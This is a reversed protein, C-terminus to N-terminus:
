RGRRRRQGQHEVLPARLREAEGRVDHGVLDGHAGLETADDDVLLDGGAVADVLAVAEVGDHDRARDAVGALCDRGDSRHAVGGIDDVRLLRGHGVAREGVPPERIDLAGLPAEHLATRREGRDGGHSRLVRDGLEPERRAVVAPHCVPAWTSRRRGSLRVTGPSTRLTDTVVSPPTASVLTVMELSARRSAAFALSVAGPVGSDAVRDSRSSPGSAPGVSAITSKRRFIPTRQHCAEAIPHAAGVAGAEHGGDDDGHEDHAAPTTARAREPPEAPFVATASPSGTLRESVGTSSRAVTFFSAAASTCRVGFSSGVCRRALSTTGGVLRQYEPRTNPGFAWGTNGSGSPKTNRSLPKANPTGRM